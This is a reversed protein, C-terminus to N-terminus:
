ADEPRKQALRIAEAARVITAGAVDDQVVTNAGIWVDDGIRIPGAIVAGPYIRADNGISPMGIKHAGGGISVNQYVWAREGISVQAGIVIGQPHPLVLGGGIRATGAISCGYWHRGIWFLLKSVIRGVVPVRHRLTYSLRYLVTCRFGASTFFIRLMLGSGGGRMAIGQEVRVHALADARLSAWLPLISADSKEIWDSM